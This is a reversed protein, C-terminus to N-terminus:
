DNIHSFEEKIEALFEPETLLDIGTAILGKIYGLCVEMAEDTGARETFYYTHVGFQSGDPSDGIKCSLHISPAIYSVNGLDTSGGVYQGEFRQPKFGLEEMYDTARRSLVQNSITDVYIAEPDRIFNVECGTALAAGKAADMLRYTLAIADKARHARTYFDAKTYDPIIGPVVGGDTIVGHIRTDETTQQRMLAVANFLLIMADLANIGIEPAAAAHSPKGRFEVSLADIASTNWSDTDMCSPHVQMVADCDDFLGAKAMPIKAGANEEAPTGYIRVEGGFEDIFEKMGLGSGVGMMAILNHGCAHGIEPLCDYESIMGIVPGPKDGKYSAVFATPIDAVGTEVDFGYKKILEVQWACAKFEELGLEPNDHIDKALKKLEPSLDAVIKDIRDKYKM